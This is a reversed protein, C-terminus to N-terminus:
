KAIDWKKLKRWLTTQSIGLKKCTKEKNYGTLELTKRVM